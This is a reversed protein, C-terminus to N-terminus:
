HLYSHLLKSKGNPTKLIYLGSALSRSSITRLNGVREGKLNYIYGNSMQHKRKQSYQIKNKINVPDSALGVGRSFYIENYNDRRSDTWAFLVDDGQITIGKYDGYFGRLEGREDTIEVNESFEDTFTNAYYIANMGNHRTDTWVVHVRGYKDVAAWPQLTRSSSTNDNVRIPDTWTDGYDRSIMVWIDHDGSGGPMISSWTCAVVRGTPDCGAGVIPHQRVDVGFAFTGMDDCLTRGPELTAGWDKSRVYTLIRNQQNYCIHVYGTNGVNISTGHGLDGLSQVPEWTEGHDLSRKFGGPSGLWTLFVTGDRTATVWPKDWADQVTKWPSWTNGNDKSVSLRIESVTYDQCAAYFNGEDDVAVVPDGTMTGNLPNCEMREGWTKGGDTSVSYAALVYGNTRYDIWSALIAGGEKDQAAIEVETCVWCKPEGTINYDPDSFPNGPETKGKVINPKVYEPPRPSQVNVSLIGAIFFIGLTLSILLVPRITLFRLTKHFLSM